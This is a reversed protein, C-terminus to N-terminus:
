LHFKPNIINESPCIYPNNRHSRIFNSFFNYIQAPFRHISCRKFLLFCKCPLLLGRHLTATHIIVVCCSPHIHNRHHRLPPLHRDPSPLAQFQILHRPPNAFPFLPPSFEDHPKDDHCSSICLLLVCVFLSRRLVSVAASKM